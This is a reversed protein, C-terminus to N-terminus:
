SFLEHSYTVIGFLMLCMFIYSTYEIATDIYHGVAFLTIVIATCLSRIKWSGKM